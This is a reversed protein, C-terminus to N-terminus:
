ILRGQEAAKMRRDFDKKVQENYYAEQATYFAQNFGFRANNIAFQKDQAALANLQAFNENGTVNNALDLMSQRNNFLNQNATIRGITGQLAGIYNTISM